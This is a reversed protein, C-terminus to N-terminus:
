PAATGFADRPALRALPGSTLRGLWSALASKPAPGIASVTFRGVQRSAVHASNSVPLRAQRRYVLLVLGDLGDWFTVRLAPVRGKGVDIRKVGVPVYGAPLDGKSMLRALLPRDLARPSPLQRAVGRARIASVQTYRGEAVVQGGSDSVRYGLRAGTRRDVWFTWDPTLPGKGHLELVQVERGALRLPSGLTATFARALLEPTVGVPLAFGRGARDAQVGPLASHERTTGVVELTREAVLMRELLTTAATQSSAAVPAASAAGGALPGSGPPLSQSAGFAPLSLAALAGLAGVLARARRVGPRQRRRM